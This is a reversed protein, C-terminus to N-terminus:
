LQLQYNETIEDGTVTNFFYYENISAKEYEVLELELGYKEEMYHVYAGRNEILHDIIETSVVLTVKTPGGRRKCRGLWRDINSLITETSYVFGMGDCTICRKTKELMLNQRVRKRTVEMLGFQSLPLFSIPTRDPKIAKKFERVVAEKDDESDMDIFDIVILGGIDRLRLQKAIEFAADINTELINKAQNSGQVKPGTNVDIVVMAETSEIVLYGGRKLPVQRMLTKQYEEELKFHEFLSDTSSWLKVRDMKDPSLIRLYNRMARYENKDDIYVFDTNDSFFDRLTTEVSNSEEYLLSPGQALEFNKKTTQWKADLAAMQKAIEQESENLGNTRVIYGVDKSKLQRILKRLNRRKQTDREKKSVGIFNNNPLCVLFRGPFTLHTTLRAGKTSIPEKTIQVAIEQGERLLQDIPKNPHQNKADYADDDEDLDLDDDEDSLPHAMIDDIHLFGAKELGIDVFAAQLGPLVKQVRGKYVNGLLRNSNPGEVVLEQLEGSELIAIRKESPTVSVVIERKNNTRM